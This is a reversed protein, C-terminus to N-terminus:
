LLSSEITTAQETAKVSREYAKTLNVYSIASLLLITVILLMGTFLALKGRMQLKINKPKVM